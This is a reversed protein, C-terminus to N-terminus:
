SWIKYMEIQNFVIPDIWMLKLYNFELYEKFDNKMINKVKIRSKLKWILIKFNIYM